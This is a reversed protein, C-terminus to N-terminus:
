QLCCPYIRIWNREHLLSCGLNDVMDHGSFWSDRSPLLIM